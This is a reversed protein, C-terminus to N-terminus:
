KNTYNAEIAQGSHTISFWIVKRILYLTCQTINHMGVWGTLLIAKM